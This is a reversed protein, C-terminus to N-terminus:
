RQIALVVVCVIVLWFILQLILFSFNFAVSGQFGHDDLWQQLREELDMTTSV